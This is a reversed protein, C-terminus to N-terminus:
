LIINVIVSTIHEAYIYDHQYTIVICNYMAITHDINSVTQVHYSIVPLGTFLVRRDTDIANCQIQITENWGTKVVAHWFALFSLVRM